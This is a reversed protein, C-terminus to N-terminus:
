VVTPHVTSSKSGDSSYFSMVKFTNQRKELKHRISSKLPALSKKVLGHSVTSFNEESVLNELPINELLSMSSEMKSSMVLHLVQM